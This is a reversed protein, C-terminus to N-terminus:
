RSNGHQQVVMRSYSCPLNKHARTPSTPGPPKSYLVNACTSSTAGKKTMRVLWCAAPTAQCHLRLVVGIGLYIECRKVDVAGRPAVNPMVSSSILLM